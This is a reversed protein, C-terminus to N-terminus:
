LIKPSDEISLLQTNRYDGVMEEILSMRLMSPKSESNNENLTAFQVKNTDLGSKGPPYMYAYIGFAVVLAGIIAFTYKKEM